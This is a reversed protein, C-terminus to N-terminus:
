ILRFFWYIWLFRTHNIVINRTLSFIFLFLLLSLFYFLHHHVLWIEVFLHHHLLFQFDMTLDEDGQFFLGHGEDRWEGFLLYRNGPPVRVVEVDSGFIVHFFGPLIRLFKGDTLLIDKLLFYLFFILLLFPFYFLLLPFPPFKTLQIM